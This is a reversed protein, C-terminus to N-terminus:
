GTETGSFMFERCSDGQSPRTKPFHQIQNLNKTWSQRAEARSKTAFLPLLRVRWSDSHVAHRHRMQCTCTVASFQHLRLQPQIARQRLSGGCSLCLLPQDYTPPAEVGVVKYQAQCNPCQFRVATEMMPPLSLASKTDAFAPLLSSSAHSFSCRRWRCKPQRRTARSILACPSDDSIQQPQPPM